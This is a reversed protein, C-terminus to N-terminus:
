LEYTTNKGTKSNLFSKLAKSKLANSVDDLSISDKGYLFTDVFTDYSLPLFCLMIIAQDESEIKIDINKLDMIISNFEDLHTKVLTGETM